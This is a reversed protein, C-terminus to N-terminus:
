RGQLVLGAYLEPGFPSTVYGAVDARLAVFEQTNVLPVGPLFDMVRDNAQRYLAARRARSPGQRARALLRFLAPDSFGFQNTARSFFTGLFDNPDGFDGTWGVLDLNGARGREVAVLYRPWPVGHTKVAFGAKRLGRALISAATAPEPLYPRSVETPYWLEVPVPPTLGALRLLRRSERPDYAYRAASTSYGFVQPPQFLNAVTASGRPQISDALRRRDLGSAVAKRVLLKDLPARAQNIALYGVDYPPRELVRLEPRKEIEAVDQPAVLDYGDIEGRELAGLRAGDTPLVLFVVRQLAPKAGWYGDNRVLVLREGRAWSEVRFPGTGVPEGLDISQPSAISFAPLPLASLFAADPRTLEIRVTHPDDVVCDRYLSSQGKFGGFVRQWYYSRDLARNEGTFRYWRDFNACVAQADLPTGDQFTVGGRLLFTWVRGSRDAHWARALSPVLDTTGPAYAVLGEFAQAIVRRSELDPSLAGDLSTPEAAVGFTFTSGGGGGGFCGGALLAFAALLLSKKM